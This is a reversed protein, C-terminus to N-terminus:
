DQFIHYYIMHKLEQLLVFLTLVLYIYFSCEECMSNWIWINKCKFSWWKFHGQNSFHPHDCNQKAHFHIQLKNIWIIWNKKRNKSKWNINIKTTWKHLYWYLKHFFHINLTFWNPISSWWGRIFKECKKHPRFQWLWPQSSCFTTWM